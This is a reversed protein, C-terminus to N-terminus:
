LPVYEFSFDNFKTIGIITIRTKPIMYMMVCLASEPKTLKM